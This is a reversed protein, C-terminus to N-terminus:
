REVHLSQPTARIVKQPELVLRVKARWHDLVGAEPIEGTTGQSEQDHFVDGANHGRYELLFCFCGGGFAAGGRSISQSNSLSSFPRHVLIDM